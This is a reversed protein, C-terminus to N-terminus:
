ITLYVLNIKNILILFNFMNINNKFDNLHEKMYDLGFKIDSENLDEIIIHVNKKFYSNNILSNFDEDNLKLNFNKIKSLINLFLNYSDKNIIGKFDNQFQNWYTKIYFYNYTQLKNKFFLEKYSIDLKKNLYKNYKIIKFKRKNKLYSFLDQLVNPKITLLKM